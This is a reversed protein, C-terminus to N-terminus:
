FEGHLLKRAIDLYDAEKDIGIVKGLGHSPYFLTRLPSFGGLVIRASPFLPKVSKDRELETKSCQVAPSNSGTVCWITPRKVTTHRVRCKESRVRPSM